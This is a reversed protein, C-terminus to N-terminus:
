TKPRVAEPLFQGNNEGVERAILKNLLANMRMLADKNQEANVALNTMEHPDQELDFLEVDNHELLGELTTPTNVKGMSPANRSLSPVYGLEMQDVVGNVQPPQGSFIVGRSPTCMASAIYHQEFTTGRKRLEARAPM